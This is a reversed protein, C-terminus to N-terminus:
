PIALKLAIPWRWGALRGQPALQVLPSLALDSAKGITPLSPFLEGHVALGGVYGFLACADNALSLAAETFTDGTPTQKAVSSVEPLPWIDRWLEIVIDLAPIVTEQIASLRTLPMPKVSRIGPSYVILRDTPTDLPFVQPPGHTIYALTPPENTGEQAFAAQCAVLVDNLATAATSPNM